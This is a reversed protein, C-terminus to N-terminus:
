AWQKAEGKSRLGRSNALTEWGDTWWGQAGAARAVEPQPSIAAKLGEQGPSQHEGRQRRGEPVARLSSM